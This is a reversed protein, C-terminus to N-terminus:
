PIRRRCSRNTDRFGRKEWVRHMSTISGVGKMVGKEAIDNKKEKSRITKGHKVLRGYKTFYSMNFLFRKRCV